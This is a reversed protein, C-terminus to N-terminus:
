FTGGLLLGASAYGVSPEVRFAFRRGQKVALATVIAGAVVGVGGVAFCGIAANTRLTGQRYLSADYTGGGREAALLQSTTQNALAFAVGGGVMAAAGVALMTVGGLLLARSPAAAPKAVARTPHATVEPTVSTASAAPPASPGSPAAAAPEAEVVSVRAPAVRRPHAKKRKNASAEGGGVLAVGLAIACLWATCRRLGRPM